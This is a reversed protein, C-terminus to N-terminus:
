PRVATAPPRACVNVCAPRPLSSQAAAAVRQLRLRAPQQDAGWEARVRPCGGTEAGEGGEGSPLQEQQWRRAEDWPLM